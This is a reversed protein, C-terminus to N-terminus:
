LHAKGFEIRDKKCAQGIFSNLTYINPNISWIEKWLSNHFSLFLLIKLFKLIGWAESEELISAEM